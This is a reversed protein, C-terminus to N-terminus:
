KKLYRIEKQFQNESITIFDVFNLDYRQASQNGYKITSNHKPKNFLLIVQECFENSKETKIMTATSKSDYDNEFYGFHGVNQNICTVEDDLCLLEEVTTIIGNPYIETITEINGKITEDIIIEVLTYSSAERIEFSTNYHIIRGIIINEFNDHVIIPKRTICSALTIIVLIWIKPDFLLKSIIELKSNIM